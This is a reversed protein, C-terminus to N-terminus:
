LLQANENFVAYGNFICYKILRDRFVGVISM